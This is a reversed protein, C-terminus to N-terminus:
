QDKEVEAARERLDNILGEVEYEDEDEDELQDLRERERQELEDALERAKSPSVCQRSLPPFTVWVCGDRYNPAVEVDVGPPVGDGSTEGTSEQTGRMNRIPTEGMDGQEEELLKM